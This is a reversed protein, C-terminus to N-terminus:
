WDVRLVKWFSDMALDLAVTGDPLQRWKIAVDNVTVAKPPAAAERLVLTVPYAPPPGFTRTWLQGPTVREGGHNVLVYWTSSGLRRKVVEVSGAESVLQVSPRLVRGLLQRFWAIQTWNAGWNYDSFLKAGLYWVEGGGLARRVLLPNASPQDSAPGMGWGFRMGFSCDYPAIANAVTEGAAKFKRFEGRVLVPRGETEWAPFYIHDQWPAAEAEVEALGTPDDGILLLKGGGEVHRRLTAVTSEALWEMEPVVVLREKAIREELYDEAVIAFNAGADLCLAHAGKLAELRRKGTAFDALDPGYSVGVGHLLLVDPELSAADPAALKDFRKALSGVFRVADVTEPALHNEPHTRDGFYARCGRAWVAAAFQELTALPRPSWDGWGQNFITNMVDSPVDAMSGFAASMSAQLSQPGATCFDLTICNVSRPLREPYPITGLQNFGIKANPKRAKIFQSIRDVLRLARRHRFQGYVAWPGDAGSPIELGCEQRFDRQCRECHCIGMAGMTDFFFGDVPYAQCIEDIMPLMNEDTYPTFPCVSIFHDESLRPGNAGVQVWDHHRRGAEGDIGFSLYALVSLGEKACAEALDGFADGVMKPHPYGVKSPYYAFGNHCKAFSIIEEVGNAKLERAFGAADPAHNIRIDKHSHFDFHWAFKVM